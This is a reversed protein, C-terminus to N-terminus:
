TAMDDQIQKVLWPAKKMGKSEVPFIWISEKMFDKMVLMTLYEGSAEAEARVSTVGRETLFMYDMGVRPVENSNEM